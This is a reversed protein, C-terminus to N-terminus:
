YKGENLLREHCGPLTQRDDAQNHRRLRSVEPRGVYGLGWIQEATMRCFRTTSESPTKSLTQTAMRASADSVGSHTM